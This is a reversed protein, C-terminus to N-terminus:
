DGLPAISTAAAAIATLAASMAAPTAKHRPGLRHREALWKPDNYSLWTKGAADQWVL